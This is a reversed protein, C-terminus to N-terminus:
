RQNNKPDDQQDNRPGGRRSPDQNQQKPLEGGAGQQRGQDAQDGHQKPSSIGSGQQDGQKQSQTQAM